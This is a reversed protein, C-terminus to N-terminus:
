SRRGRARMRVGDRLLGREPAPDQVPAPSPPPPERAALAKHIMVKAMSELSIRGRNAIIVVTLDEAALHWLLAESGRLSGGHGWIVPGHKAIRYRRAGLGYPEYKSRTEMAVLSAPQLVQGGYLADGWRAIDTATSLMSGATDAVTAASTNPRFRTGDALGAWASGTWLYGLAGSMTIPEHGQLETRTLGLPDLFRRRIEVAPDHGTVTRIVQGLLVYNTNSYTYGAGPAYYPRHVMSLIEPTTWVHHPRGFVRSEYEPAMFYDFLGSTHSLLEKLTIGAANPYSPLFRSLRDDITLAGEEQLQLVVSAIFTKTISGVAIATRPRMPRGKGVNALGSAGAWLSGDPMVVAASVGALPRRLVNKDLVAQLKAALKASVPPPPEIIPRAALTSGPLAAVLLAVVLVLRAVSWASRATTPPSAPRRSRNM